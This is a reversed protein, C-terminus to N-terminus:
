RSKWEAICTPEPPVVVDDHDSARAIRAGAWEEVHQCQEDTWTVIEALPIEELDVLGLIDLLVDNDRTWPGPPDDEPEHTGLYNLSALVLGKAPMGHFEAILQKALRFGDLGVIRRELILVGDMDSRTGAMGIHMAPAERFAYYHYVHNM